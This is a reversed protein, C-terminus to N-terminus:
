SYTAKRMNIIGTPAKNVGQATNSSQEPKSSAAQAATSVGTSIQTKTGLLREIRTLIENTAKAEELQLKAIGLLDNPTVQEDKRQNSTAQSVSKGVADATGLTASAEASLNVADSETPAPTEPAPTPAPTPSTTAGTETTAEPTVTGTDTPTTEEPKAGVAAEATETTTPPAENAAGSTPTGEGEKEKLASDPTEGAEKILADLGGNQELQKYYKYLNERVDLNIYGGNVIRTVGKVDGAKSLKELKGNYNGIKKWYYATSEASGQPTLLQDPNNLVDMGTGKELARYNDKGTLQIYGRGRYKWGEGPEKNGMRGGYISNAIAVPGGATVKAAAEITPFRNKFTKHLGKASYRLNEEVTRYGGTEEHTQALIMAIENKDTIGYKKLAKLLSIQGKKTGPGIAPPKVPGTQGTTDVKVDTGTSNEGGSGVGDGTTGGYGGGTTGAADGEGAGIPKGTKPDLGLHAAVAPDLVGETKNEGPMYGKQEDATLPKPKDKGDGEDKGKPVKPMLRKRAEDLVEVAVRAKLSEMAENTTSVDTNLAYEDGWPSDEIEWVSVKMIFPRSQASIIATAIKVQSAFKMKEVDKLTATKDVLRVATAFALFVPVFRNKFWGMWLKQRSHDKFSFGFRPAWLKMEAYSDYDLEAEGDSNYKLRETFDKEMALLVEVASKTMEDLGYTRLRIGELESLRSHKSRDFMSKDVDGSGSESLKEAARLKEETVYSQEKNAVDSKKVTGDENIYKKNDERREEMIGQKKQIREANAFEKEIEKICSDIYAEGTVVVYGLKPSNEVNYPYLPDERDFKSERAIKPKLGNALKDDSTHVQLDKSVAKLLEVWKLYVPRFRKVLWGDFNEKDTPNNVDVEFLEYAEKVPFSSKFNPKMGDGSVVHEGAKEELALVKSYVDREDLNIGYEALRLKQLPDPKKFFKKWVFYGGIAVAAVAVIGLTVPNFLLAGAGSALAGAGTAIASGAATAGSAVASGIGTGALATLGRAGWSLATRGAGGLMRGLRGKRGFMDMMGGMAKSQMIARSLMQFGTKLYTLPNLAKLVKSAGAALLGGIYLFPKWFPNKKRDEKKEKKEKKNKAAEARKRRQDLWSGERNGGLRGGSLKDLLWNAGGLTKDLAKPLLKLPKLLTTKYYAGLGRLIGKGFTKFKRGYRDVLGKELDEESLVIEGDVNMIPSDIESASYIRKGTKTSLYMGRRLNRALLRPEKEGLVYVDRVRNLLRQGFPLLKLATKTLKKTLKWVNRYYGGFYWNIFQGTRFMFGSRTIETGDALRIGNTYDEPTILVNGEADTVPGRIDKITKIVEGTKYDRYEGAEMKIKTLVPDPKGYIYIDAARKENRNLGMGSLLRSGMLKARDVGHRALDTVRDAFGLLNKTFIPLARGLKDVLGAAIDVASLIVNGAIDVITGTIDAINRIFTGKELSLYRDALMGQRTLRPETEGVVFVDAPEDAKPKAPDDTLRNKLDELTSRNITGSTGSQEAGSKHNERIVREALKQTEGGIEEGVNSIIQAPTLGEYKEMLTEVLKLDKVNNIFDNAMKSNGLSKRATRMRDRVTELGSTTVDRIVDATEKRKTELTARTIGKDALMQETVIVLDEGTAEVREMAQRLTEKLEGSSIVRAYKRYIKKSERKYKRFLTPASKSIDEIKAKGTDLLPNVRAEVEPKFQDYKSRIQTSTNNWANQAYGGVSSASNIIWDRFGKYGGDGPKPRNPDRKDQDRQDGNTDGNLIADLLFDTNFYEQRGDFKLAGINRLMERDGNAIIKNIMAETNPISGRAYKFQGSIENIRAQTEADSAWGDKNVTGFMGTFLKSIEDATDTDSVRDLNSATRYDNVQFGKGELMNHLMQARLAEKAKDSIKSDGLLAEMTYDLGNNVWDKQSKGIIRQTVLDGAAKITEFSDKSTSFVVREVPGGTRVMEISQLIRSLYGPIIEVLSKRSLEDYSVAETSRNFLNSTHYQASNYHKPILSKIGNIFDAGIRGKGTLRDAASEPEWFKYRLGKSRKKSWQNLLEPLNDDAYLLRQNMKEVGPIKRIMNGIDRGFADLFLDAGGEAAMEGVMEGGMEYGSPGFGDDVPSLSDLQMNAMGLGMRLSNTFNKVKGTVRKGLREQFNSTYGDITKGAESLAKARMQATAAESLRTKVIDPLATNHVIGKLQSISEVSHEKVAQLLKSTTFYQRYMLEITKRDRRAAVTDQYSVLRELSNRIAVSQELGTLFRRGDLKEKAEDRANTQRREEMDLNQQIDFMDKLASSIADAEPDWESQQSNTQVNDDLYKNVKKRLLPPLNDQYRPKLRKANRLARDVEPKLQEKSSNYLEKTFSAVDRVRKIAAVYGKPAVGEVLKMLMSPSTLNEKFGSKFGAKVDQIPTRSEPIDTSSLDGFDDYDFGDMGGLDLNFKDERAM